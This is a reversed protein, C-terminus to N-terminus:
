ASSGEGRRVLRAQKLAEPNGRVKWALRRQRHVSAEAAAPNPTHLALEEGWMAATAAAINAKRANYDHVREEKEARTELARAHCRRRAPADWGRRM